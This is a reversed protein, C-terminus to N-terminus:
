SFILVEFRWCVVIALVLEYVHPQRAAIFERTAKYM